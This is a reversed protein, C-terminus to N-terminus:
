KKGFLFDTRLKILEDRTIEGLEYCTKYFLLWSGTSRYHEKQEFVSLDDVARRLKDTKTDKGIVYM